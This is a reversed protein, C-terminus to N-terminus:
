PNCAPQTPNCAPHISDVAETLVTLVTGLLAMLCGTRSPVFFTLAATVTLCSNYGWLGAHVQETPAGLSFALLTGLSAGAFAAAAAIRSSVAMGGVILAGSVVSQCLFVQGVSVLSAELLWM